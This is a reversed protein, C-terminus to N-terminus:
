SCGLALRRAMTRDDEAGFADRFALFLNLMAHLLIPNSSHLMGAFHVKIHAAIPPAWQLVASALEALISTIEMAAAPTLVQPRDM